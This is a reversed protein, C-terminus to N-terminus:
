NNNKERIKGIIMGAFIATLPAVLVLGISGVLTRMIESAVIKLNLIRSFSSNQVMFLMLLPLFSGSYALLLTTTMTGIVAKGVNFGSKILEAPGIDPRKIKIETISASVDMAIDMSAGSAGIVVASFFIDRMNLGTNGSFLLTEAFAQTMGSLQLKDGFFITLFITLALGSVTGLFAATGKKTFGAVSFIIIASLILLTIFTIILPESEPNLLSPILYFWMILLSAVFSFLAQLGTIRAFIILAVVFTIFLALLWPQRYVEITKANSIEGDKILLAIQAVDGKKFYSDLDMKGNLTNSATVKTGKYEGSTILVEVKQYGIPALGCTIMESDDTNLVTGYTEIINQDKTSNNSYNLFFFLMVVISIIFIISKLLNKKVDNGEKNFL